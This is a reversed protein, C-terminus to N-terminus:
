TYARTSPHLQRWLDTMDFAVAWNALGHQQPGSAHLRDLDRSMVLIFDGVILVDDVNYMTVM